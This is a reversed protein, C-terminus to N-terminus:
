ASHFIGFCKFMQYMNLEKPVEFTLILTCDAYTECSPFRSARCRGGSLGRCCETTIM